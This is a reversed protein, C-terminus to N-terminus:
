NEGLEDDGAAAEEMQAQAQEVQNQDYEASDSTISTSNDSGCGVIMLVVTLAFLHKM